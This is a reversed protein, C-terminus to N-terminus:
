SIRELEDIVEVTIEKADGVVKMLKRLALRSNYVADKGARTGPLICGRTNRPWNGVHILIYTRGHADELRICKGFKRSRYIEAKYTGALIRSINRQNGRDPLELCFCEFKGPIVIKGITSKGSQWLRFIQIKM